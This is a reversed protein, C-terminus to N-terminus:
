HHGGYHHIGRSGGHGGYGYSPLHHGFADHYGWVPVTRRARWAVREPSALLYDIVRDTVGAERLRLVDSTTLRYAANSRQLHALIVDEPVGRSGLEELDTLSLRAGRELKDLVVVDAGFQAATAANTRRVATACGTLLSLIALFSIVSIRKM